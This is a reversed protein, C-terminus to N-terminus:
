IDELEEVELAALEEAEMEMDVLFNQTPQQMIHVTVEEVEVEQTFVQFGLQHQRHGHLTLMQELEELEVLVTELMQDLRVREEVAREVLTKFRGQPPVEMAEKLHHPLLLTAQEVLVILETQLIEEVEVRVEV